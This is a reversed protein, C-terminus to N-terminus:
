KLRRRAEAVVEPPPADPDLGLLMAILQVAGQFVATQNNAKHVDRELDVIRGGQSAVQGTLALIRAAQQEAFDAATQTEAHPRVHVPRQCLPNRIYEPM